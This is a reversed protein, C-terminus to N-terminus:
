KSGERRANRCPYSMDPGRHIVVYSITCLRTPHGDRCGACREDTLTEATVPVRWGEPPSQPGDNGDLLWQTWALARADGELAKAMTEMSIQGRSAAAKIDSRDM